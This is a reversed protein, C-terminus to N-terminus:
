FSPPVNGYNGNNPYQNVNNVGNAGQPIQANWQPATPWNPTGGVTGAAGPDVGTQSYQGDYNGSQGYGGSAQSSSHPHGYQQGNGQGHNGYTDGKNIGYQSGSQFAQSGACHCDSNTLRITNALYHRQMFETYQKLSEM